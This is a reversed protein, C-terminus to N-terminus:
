YIIHLIKWHLDIRIVVLTFMDLYSRLGFIIRSGSYRFLLFSLLIVINGEWKFRLNQQMSQVLFIQISPSMFQLM